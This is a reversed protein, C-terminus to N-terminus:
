PTLELEFELVREKGLLPQRLVQLAATDGPAKSLMGIRIDTTDSVTIGDLRQIIDGKEVGAEAAAGDEVLDGVLVGNEHAEMYVGMMGRPPLESANPFIIIDAIGPELALSDAPLIIQSNVQVRREVRAPIGSGFSLHGSGALVVVREQPHESLYRALVDAMGEDWTLQVEIFRQFGEEGSRAHKSYVERLRAEYDKDSFDYTRPLQRREADDLGNLGSESVRSTLEVPVNLALVPIRHARAYQMIPRYLRYDYRWRDYWEVGRLMAREDLEGAIYSDLVSQFPQQVFEVGIAIAGNQRHLAKIIELQSIHHGYRDHTEGVYVVRADVLDNIVDELATIKKLSLATTVGGGKADRAAEGGTSRTEQARCSGLLLAIVVWLLFLVVRRKTM